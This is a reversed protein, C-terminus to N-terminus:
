IDGARVLPDAAIDAHTVVSDADIDHRARAGIADELSPLRRLPRGRLDTATVMVDERRVRAGRAISKTARVAGAVVGLTATAEGVRRRSRGTGTSLVIRTPEGLRTQPDLMAILRAEDSELRIESLGSVSVRADPGLRDHVAREVADVIPQTSVPVATAGAALAVSLVILATEVFLQTSRRCCKM